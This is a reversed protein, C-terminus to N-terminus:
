FEKDCKECYYRFGRHLCGGLVIRGEKEAKELDEDMGVLGYIIRATHTNGCSPCISRQKELKRWKDKALIKDVEIMRKIGALETTTFFKEAEYILAKRNQFFKIILCCLTKVQEEEGSKVWDRLKDGLPSYEWHGRAEYFDRLILDYKQGLGTTFGDKILKDYKRM